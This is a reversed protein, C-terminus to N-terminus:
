TKARFTVLSGPAKDFAEPLHHNMCIFSILVMIGLKKCSDSFESLWNGYLEEWDSNECLKASLSWHCLHKRLLNRHTTIFSILVM